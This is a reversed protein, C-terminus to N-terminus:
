DAGFWAAVAQLLAGRPQPKGGTAPAAATASKLDALQAAMAEM